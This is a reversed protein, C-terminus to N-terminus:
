AKISKTATILKLRNQAEIALDLNLGLNIQGDILNM